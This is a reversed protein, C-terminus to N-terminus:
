RGDAATVVLFSVHPEHLAGLLEATGLGGLHFTARGGVAGNRKEAHRGAVGADDLDVRLSVKGGAARLEHSQRGADGLGGGLVSRALADGAGDAHVGQGDLVQAPVHAAEVLLTLPL